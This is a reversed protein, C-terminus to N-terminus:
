RMYRDEWEDIENESLAKEKRGRAEKFDKRLAFGIALGSAMGALHALNAVNTPYFVGGIDLLAWFAAAVFMPMPVGLAFVTMRPRIAALAGIVGFIAGSAGLSSEYSLSAASSIIGTGIFIAMFRRSGTINELVFGFFGLAIMNSLLHSVSGHLFVSTLLIWPRALAESSVLAFSDTLGTASLQLIFVATIAAILYFTIYRM